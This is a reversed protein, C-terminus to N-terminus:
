SREEDCWPSEKRKGRANFRWIAPDWAKKKKKRETDIEKNQCLVCLAEQSFSM